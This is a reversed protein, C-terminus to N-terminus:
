LRIVYRKTMPEIVRWVGVFGPEIVFADGVGYRRAAGGDPVLECLGRTIECFEWETYTHDGFAYQNRTEAVPAGELVKEPAIAEREVPASPDLTILKSLPLVRAGYEISAQAYGLVGM